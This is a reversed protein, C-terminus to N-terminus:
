GGGWFMEEMEIESFPIQMLEAEIMSELMGPPQERVFGNVSPPSVM